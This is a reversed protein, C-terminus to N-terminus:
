QGVLLSEHSAIRPQGHNSQGRHQQCQGTGSRGAGLVGGRERLVHRRDELLLALRAMPRAVDRRHREDGVRFRPGPRPGDLGADLRPLHRRPVDVLRDADPVELVVARQGVLLDVRDDAPDVGTRRAAVGVVHRRRDLEGVVVDPVVRIEEAPRRIQDDVRRRVGHRRHRLVTPPLRLHRGPSVSSRQIRAMSIRGDLTSPRRTVCWARARRCCSSSSSSPAADSTPGPRNISHATPLCPSIM